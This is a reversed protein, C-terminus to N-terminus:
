WVRPAVLPHTRPFNMGVFSFCEAIGPIARVYLRAPERDANRRRRESLPFIFTTQTSLSFNARDEMRRLVSLPHM